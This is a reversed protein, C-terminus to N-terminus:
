GELKKITKYIKRSKLSQEITKNALKGKDYMDVLPGIVPTITYQNRRKELKGAIRNQARLSKDYLANQQQLRSARERKPMGYITADERSSGGLGPM